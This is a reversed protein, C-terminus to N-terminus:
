GRSFYRNREARYLIYKKSVFAYGNEMLITEVTDQINEIGPTAGTFQSQLRQEVLEAIRRSEEPNNRGCAQMAKDVAREIKSIDYPVERGDRKVITQFM